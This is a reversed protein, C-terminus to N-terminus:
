LKETNEKNKTLTLADTLDTPLSVNGKPSHSDISITLPGFPSGCSSELTAADVSNICQSPPGREHEDIEGKGMDDPASDSAGRSVRVM